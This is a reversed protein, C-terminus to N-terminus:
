AAPGPRVVSPEFEETGSVACTDLDSLLETKFPDDYLRPVQAAKRQRDLRVMREAHRRLRRRAMADRWWGVKPLHGLEALSEARYAALFSPQRALSPDRRVAEDMYDLGELDDLDPEIWECTYIEPEPGFLVDLEAQFYPRNLM